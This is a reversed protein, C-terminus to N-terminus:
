ETYRREDSALLDWAEPDEYAHRNAHAADRSAKNSAEVSFLDLARVVREQYDPVAELQYDGGLNPHVCVIAAYAVRYKTTAELMYWYMNLQTYYHYLSCNPLGELPGHGVDTSKFARKKIEKSRKWDYLWIAGDPDIFAGDCQGCLFVEVAPDPQYFMSLETRWPKLNRPLIEAAYFKAFARMETTYFRQDLISFAGNLALEISRHTVRGDGAAKGGNETWAKRMTNYALRRYHLEFEELREPSLPQYDASSKYNQPDGDYGGLQAFASACERESDAISAGAFMRAVWSVCMERYGVRFYKYTPKCLINRGHAIGQCSEHAQYLIFFSKLWSTASCLQLSGDVFYRHEAREEYRGLRGSMVGTDADIPFSDVRKQTRTDLVLYEYFKIRDDFEPVKNAEQLTTLCGGKCFHELMLDQFAAAALMEVDSIAGGGGGGGGSDANTPAAQGSASIRRRAVNKRTAGASSQTTKRKGVAPKADSSSM